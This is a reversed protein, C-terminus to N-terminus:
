MLWDVADCIIAVDEVHQALYVDEPWEAMFGLQAKTLKRASPVKAGDKVEVLFTRKGNSCVLDPFGRGIASTDFVSIGFARFADIIASHNDDVKAARRM